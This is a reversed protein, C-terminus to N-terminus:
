PQPNRMPSASASSRAWAGRPPVSITLPLPALSRSTGTNGTTVSAM